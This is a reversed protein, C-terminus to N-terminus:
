HNELMIGIFYLILMVIGIIKGIKIIKESRTKSKKKLKKRLEKDTFIEERTAEIKRQEEISLPSKIVDYIDQGNQCSKIATETLGLAYAITIKDFIINKVTQGAQLCLSNLSTPIVATLKELKYEFGDTNSVFIIRKNTIIYVGTFSDRVSRRILEGGQEGSHITLGKTVKISAGFSKGSYGVTKYKDVYSTAPAAYIIVEDKPLFLGEYDVIPYKIGLEYPLVDSYPNNMNQLYVREKAEEDFYAAHYDM